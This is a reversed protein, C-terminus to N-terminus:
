TLYPNFPDGCKVSQRGAAPISDSMDVGCFWCYKPFIDSDKYTAKVISPPDQLTDDSSESISASCTDDCVAWGHDDQRRVKEVRWNWWLFLQLHHHQFASLINSEM